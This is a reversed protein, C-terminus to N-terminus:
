RHLPKFNRFLWNLRIDQEQTPPPPREQLMWSPTRFAKVPNQKVLKEGHYVNYM